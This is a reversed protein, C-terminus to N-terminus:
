KQLQIRKALRTSRKNWRKALLAAARPRSRSIMSDLCGDHRALLEFSLEGCQALRLLGGDHLPEGLLDAIGPRADLLRGVNETARRADDPSPDRDEHELVIPTEAPGLGLQERVVGSEASRVQHM